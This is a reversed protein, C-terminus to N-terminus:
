SEGAGPGGCPSVPRKTKGPDRADTELHFVEHLEWSAPSASEEEQGRHVQMICAKHLMSNEITDEAFRDIRPM